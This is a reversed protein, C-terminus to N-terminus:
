ATERLLPPCARNVESTAVTEATQSTASSHESQQWDQSNPQAKPEPEETSLDMPCIEALRRRAAELAKQRYEWAESQQEPPVNSIAVQYIRERDNRAGTRKISKLELNLKGLLKSCIDIPTHRKRGKDDIYEELVTLGLWYRIEKAFQLARGQVALCRPDSNSLEVGRDALELIGLKNLLLSKVHNRPLRHSLGLSNAFVKQASERDLEKAAALNETTAQLQVGRRMAGRDRTVIWYCEEDDDFNIDPFHSRWITKEAKIEDELSCENNLTKYAAELTECVESVAMRHADERWIEERASKLAEAENSDTGWEVGEIEHGERELEYGLSERAIAKQCSRLAASRSYYELAALKISDNYEDNESSVAEAEYVGTLAKHNLELRRRVAVPSTFTEDGITNIFEPVCIYRPVNPRYRGLLQLHTDSDHCVFYGYVAAFGEWEISVGTKASPSLILFDPQNIELWSLPDNFFDAFQGQRNTKSDIRVIKKGPFEKLLRREVLRANVQSDTMWLFRRAARDIFGSESVADLLFQNLFGSLRGSGIQVQWPNNTREHKFYRVTECESLKKILELSHDYVEAEAIVIAGTQGALFCIATFRELIESQRDGLTQGNVTHDCFQNVEDLVLMLPRDGAWFWKPIKRLSDICLVAGHKQNIETLFYGLQQEAYNHIHPLGFDKATQQGLSNLMSLVLVNGGDDIWQRVLDAGIRVTKGSGMNAALVTISGQQIGSPLKPMYGDETAREPVVSLAKLRKIQGLLQATRGSKKFETLTLAAAITHDLWEQGAEGQTFVADDIGKGVRSDWLMVWLKCGHNQLEAGLKHIERSVNAITKPKEDQDFCIYTQRGQTAFEKLVTHLEITGKLHWCSVGRLAIAVYGHTLLCLAKKLGETLVIPLHCRKVCQWFTEGELPVVSHKQYITQATADDVWPLIPLAECKAPTEYKIPKRKEFDIRPNRPKLYAVDGTGGDITTGYASWGGMAAFEYRKLIAQAPKTTYSTVNQAQATAHEALAQVAQDGEIVLINCTILEPSIASSKLDAIAWQNLDIASQNSAVPRQAKIQPGFGFSPSHSM